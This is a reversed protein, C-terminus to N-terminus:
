AVCHTSTDADRLLAVIAPPALVAAQLEILSLTELIEFALVLAQLLRYGLQRQVLQDQLFSELSFVLGKGALPRANLVDTRAQIDRLTARTSDNSLWARRLSPM